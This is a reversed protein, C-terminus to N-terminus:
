LHVQHHLMSEEKLNKQKVLPITFIQIYYPVMSHLDEYVKFQNQFEIPLKSFEIDKEEVGNMIENDRYLINRNISSLTHYLSNRNIQSLYFLLYNKSKFAKQEIELFLSYAEKYKSLKALYFARIYETELSSTKKQTYLLMKSYSFLITMQDNWSPRSALARKFVTQIDDYKNNVDKSLKARDEDSMENIEFFYELINFDTHLSIIKGNEEVVIHPSLQKTIDNPRVANM